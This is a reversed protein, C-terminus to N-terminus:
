GHEWWGGVRGAILLGLGIFVLSTPIFSDSGSGAVIGCSMAGFVMLLVGVLQVKKWKKSTAEITQVPKPTEDSV